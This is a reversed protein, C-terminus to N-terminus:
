GLKNAIDNLHEEQFDLTQQFLSSNHFQLASFISEMVEMYVGLTIKNDKDIQQLLKSQMAVEQSLKNSEKRLYIAKENYGGEEAEKIEQMLKLNRDTLQAILDKVREVRNKPQNFNQNRKKIWDYKNVWVSITKETVGVKEATEKQNLFKECFYFEAQRREHTKAM